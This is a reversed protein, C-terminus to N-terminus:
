LRFRRFQLLLYLAVQRVFWRLGVYTKNRICWKILDIIYGKAYKKYATSDKLNIASKMANMQYSLVRQNANNESESKREQLLKVIQRNTELASDCYKISTANKMTSWTNGERTIRYNYGCGSWFVIKTSNLLVNMFWLVDEGYSYAKDFLWINENIILAEKRYLKDVIFMDYRGAGRQPMCYKLANEVDVVTGSQAMPKVQAIEKEMIRNYGGFAIDAHAFEIWHLLNSYMDPEIWDDSDVFGIYEGRAMKLGTNRSDSVGSNVDKHIVKLRGDRLALQDLLESSGDSSCDDILLVEIDTEIQNLISTVCEELYNVTNYVPVIISIM